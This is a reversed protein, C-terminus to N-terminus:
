YYYYTFVERREMRCSVVFLSAVHAVNTLNTFPLIEVNKLALGVTWLLNLSKSFSSSPLDAEIRQLWLYVQGYKLHWVKDCACPSSVTISWSVRPIKAVWAPAGKLVLTLIYSERQLKVATLILNDTIYAELQLKQFYAMIKLGSWKTVDPGLSNSDSSHNTNKM